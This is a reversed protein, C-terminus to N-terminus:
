RKSDRKICFYNYPVENQVVSKDFFFLISEFQFSSLIHLFSSDLYYIILLILKVIVFNSEKNCLKGIKLPHLKSPHFNHISDVISNSKKSYTTNRIEVSNKIIQVLIDSKLIMM